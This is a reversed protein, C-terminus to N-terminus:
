VPYTEPVMVDLFDEGFSLEKPVVLKVTFVARKQYVSSDDNYVIISDEDIRISSIGKGRLWTNGPGNFWTVLDAAVDEALVDGVDVTKMRKLIVELQWGQEEAWDITKTSQSANYDTGQWGIRRARRLNYTVIRDAKAFSAQGFEMSDWDTGHGTQKIGELVCLRIIRQIELRTKNQESM